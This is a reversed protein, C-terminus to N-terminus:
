AGSSWKIFEISDRIVFARSHISKIIDKLAEVKEKQLNFKMLVDNLDKDANLYTEMDQRILKLDFAQWGYEKLEEDSLRGSYYETKIKFMRKYEYETRYMALNEHTYM